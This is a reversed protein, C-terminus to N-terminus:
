RFHEISNEAITQLAEDLAAQETNFSDDWCVSTGSESEVELLWKGKGDKYIFIELDSGDKEVTRCLASKKLGADSPKSGTM